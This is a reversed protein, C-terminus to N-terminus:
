DHPPIREAAARRAVDKPTGVNTHGGNLNRLWREAAEDPSDFQALMEPPMLKELALYYDRAIAEYDFESM